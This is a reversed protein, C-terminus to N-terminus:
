VSKSSRVVRIRMLGSISANSASPVADTDPLLLTVDTTSTLTPVRTDRMSHSASSTSQIGETSSVPGHAVIWRTGTTECYVSIAPGFVTATVCDPKSNVANGLVPYPRRHVTRM